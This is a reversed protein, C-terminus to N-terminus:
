IQKYIKALLGDSLLNRFRNLRVFIAPFFQSNDGGIVYEPINPLKGKSKELFIQVFEIKEQDTLTDMFADSPGNYIAKYTYTVTNGEQTTYMVHSIPQQVPQKQEPPLMSLQEAAPEEAPQSEYLPMAPAPEEAVPQAATVSEETAPQAPQTEPVIINDYNEEFAAPKESYENAPESESEPEIVATEEAPISTEERVESEAANGDTEKATAPIEENYAPIVPAPEYPEDAVPQKESEPSSSIDEDAVFAPVYSPDDASPTFDSDDDFAKAQRGDEVNVTGKRVRKKDVVTRIIALILQIVAILTLLYLYIGPTGYDKAALLLIIALAAVIITLSYRIIAFVNHGANSVPKNRGTARDLKYHKGIALAWCEVFANIATLLPVLILVLTSILLLADSIQFVEGIATLSILYDAGYVAVGEATVYGAVTGSKLADSLSNMPNALAPILRGIDFLAVLALCAIIFVVTRYIGLGGKTAISQVIAMLVCGGLPILLNVVGFNEFSPYTVLTFFLAGTLVAASAIEIFFASRASTGKDKNGACVPILLIIGLVCLVAYLLYLAALYNVGFIVHGSAPFELFWAPLEPILNKGLAGALCENLMGPLYRIMMRDAMEGGNGYLPVFLGALLTLLAIVYTIVIATKKGKNKSELKEADIVFSSDSANTIKTAM